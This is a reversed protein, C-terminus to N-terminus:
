ETRIKLPYWINVSPGNVRKKKNSIGPLAKHLEKSFTNTNSIAALGKSECFVCYKAYLESIPICDNNDSTVECMQDAFCEVSYAIGNNVTVNVSSKTYIDEANVSYIDDGSFIYNNKRVRSFARVARSAIMPLEPRINDLLNKNQLHKQIPNECPIILLRDAFAQDLYTLKLPYNTGFLLQGQYVYNFSNMYKVEGSVTDGGSLNKLIAATSADIPVSPLDMCINVASNVLSTGVFRDTLKQPTFSTVADDAILERVIHGFVSKGTNGKGFLLVIRKAKIDNSLLLGLAEWLRQILIPNRNALDCIYKDFALTNSANYPVFPVSLANTNFNNPSHHELNQDDLNFVANSFMVRNEVDPNSFNVPMADTQIFRAIDKIYNPTGNRTTEERLTDRILKYLKLMDCLRYYTGHYVYLANNSQVFLIKSMVREAAKAANFREKEAPSSRPNSADTNATQRPLEAAKVLNMQSSIFNYNQTASVVPCHGNESYAMHVPDIVTGTVANAQYVCVTNSEGELENQAIIAMFDNRNDAIEVPEIPHEYGDEASQRIPIMVNPISGDELGQAIARVNNETMPVRSGDPLIITQEFNSENGTCLSIIPYKISENM